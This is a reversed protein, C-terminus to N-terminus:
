LVEDWNRNFPDVPVEDVECQTGCGHTTNAKAEDIVLLTHRTTGASMRHSKIVVVIAGSVKHKYTRGERNM